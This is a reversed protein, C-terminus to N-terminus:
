FAISSYNMAAEQDACKMGKVLRMFDVESVFLSSLKYLSKGVFLM